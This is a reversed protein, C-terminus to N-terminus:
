VERKSFESGLKPDTVILYLALVPTHNAKVGHWNWPHNYIVNGATLSRYDQNGGFRWHATGSILFYMEAAPHNYEPYVKNSDVYILGTSVNGLEFLRGFDLIAIETGNDLARPAYRWPLFEAFERFDKALKMDKVWEKKHLVALPNPDFDQSDIHRLENRLCEVMKQQVENEVCLAMTKACSLLFEYAQQTVAKQDFNKAKNATATTSM